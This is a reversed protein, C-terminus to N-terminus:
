PAPVRGEYFPQICRKGPLVESALTKLPQVLTKAIVGGHAITPQELSGGVREHFLTCGHRDVTAVRLDMPGDPYLSLTGKIALRHNETSLAAEDVSLLGDRFHVASHMVLIDSHGHASATEIVRSFDSAALVLSSAPGTLLFLSVDMLNGRQTYQPLFGAPMM